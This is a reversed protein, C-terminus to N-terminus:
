RPRPREGHPGEARTASIAACSESHLNGIPLIYRNLKKALYNKPRDQDDPYPAPNSDRSREKATCGQRDHNRNNRPAERLQFHYLILRTELSLIFPTLCGKCRAPHVVENNKINGHTIAESM